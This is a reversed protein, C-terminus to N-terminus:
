DRSMLLVTDQVKGGNENINVAHLEVAENRREGSPPSQGSVLQASPSSTKIGFFGDVESKVLSDLQYLLFPNM